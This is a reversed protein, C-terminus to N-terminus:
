IETFIALQGIVEIKYPCNIFTDNKYGLLFIRLDYFAKEFDIIETKAVSNEICTFTFDTESKEIDVYKARLCALGLVGESRALAITTRPWSFKQAHCFVILIEGKETSPCVM